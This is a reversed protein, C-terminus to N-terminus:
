TQEIVVRRCVNVMEQNNRDVEEQLYEPVDPWYKRCNKMALRFLNTDTNQYAKDCFSVCWGFSDRWKYTFTIGTEKDTVIIDNM